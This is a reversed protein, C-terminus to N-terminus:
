SDIAELGIIPLLGSLSECAWKAGFSILEKASIAGTAVGVADVHASNAAAMDIATDGIYLADQNSVGLLKLALLVPEPSPKTNKVEEAGVVADILDGLGSKEVALKAMWRNTVVATKMGAKRITNLTLM